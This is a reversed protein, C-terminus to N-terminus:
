PIFSIIQDEISSDWVEARPFSREFSLNSSMQNPDLLVKMM